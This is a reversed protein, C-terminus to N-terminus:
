IKKITLMKMKSKVIEKKKVSVLKQFLYKTSLNNLKTFIVVVGIKLVMAM